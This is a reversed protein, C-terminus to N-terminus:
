KLLNSLTKSFAPSGMLSRPLSCSLQKILQWVWFYSSPWCRRSPTPSKPVGKPPMQSTVGFVTRRGPAMNRSIRFQCMTKFRLLRVRVVSLTFLSMRVFPDLTAVIAQLQRRVKSDTLPVWAKGSREQLLPANGSGPTLKILEKLTITPCLFNDLKPLTM